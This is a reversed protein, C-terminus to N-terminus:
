LSSVATWASRKACHTAQVSTSLSPQRQRDDSERQREPSTTEDTRVSLRICRVGRLTETTLALTGVPTYAKDMGGTPVSLNESQRVQTSVVM